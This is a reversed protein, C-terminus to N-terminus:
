VSQVQSDLCMVPKRHLDYSVLWVARASGAKPSYATYGDYFDWEGDQITRKGVVIGHTYTVKCSVYEMVPVGSEVHTLNYGGKKKVVTGSM